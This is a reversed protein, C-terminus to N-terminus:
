VNIASMAIIQFINQGTKKNSKKVNEYIWCSSKSAEQKFNTSDSSNCVGNDISNKNNRLRGSNECEAYMIENADVHSDRYKKVQKLFISLQKLQAKYLISSLSTPCQVKRISLFCCCCKTLMEKKVKIFHVFYM